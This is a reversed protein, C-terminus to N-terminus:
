QYIRIIGICLGSFIGILLNLNAFYFEDM